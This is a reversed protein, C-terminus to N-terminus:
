RVDAGGDHEFMENLVPVDALRNCVRAAADDGSLVPDGAHRAPLHKGCAAIGDICRNRRSKREGGYLRPVAAQAAYPEHEHVQRFLVPHVHHVESRDRRACQVRRVIREGAAVRAIEEGPRRHFVVAVHVPRVGNSDGPLHVAQVRREFVEAGHSEGVDYLGGDLEGVFAHGDIPIERQFDGRHRPLKCTIRGCALDPHRAAKRRHRSGARREPPQIEGVEGIRHAPESLRPRAVEVLTFNSCADHLIEGGHAADNGGRVQRVIAGPDDGREFGFIAACLERKRGPEGGSRRHLTCQCCEGLFFQAAARV